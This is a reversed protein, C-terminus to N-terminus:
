PKKVSYIVSGQTKASSPPCWPSGEHSEGDEAAGGPCCPRACHCSSIMLYIYINLYFLFIFNLFLNKFIYITSYWKLPCLTLSPASDRWTPNRCGLASASALAAGPTTPARSSCHRWGWGAGASPWLPARRASLAALLLYCTGRLNEPTKM